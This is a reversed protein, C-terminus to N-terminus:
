NLKLPALSDIVNQIDKALPATFIYNKGAYEFELVHAHLAQRQLLKSKSGYLFDALIPFGLAAFHVRIQHTRGTLPMAKVLSYDKYYKIVEYNTQAARSSPRKTLNNFHHMKTRTTPHRGILFDITGSQKPHGVVLAIYTKHIKRQKFMETMTAHAQNTRPIIMLGSTDKDLRHVIGPRDICGVHAIQDYSNSAWDSLTVSQYNKNPPHVVLGAPKNIILFDKEQAIITIGLNDSINKTVKKESEEPFQVSIIDHAKLLYSPKAPKTKNILIQNNIFLKQLFSRSYNQFQTTIFKDIRIGVQEPLVSFQFFSGNKIFDKEM